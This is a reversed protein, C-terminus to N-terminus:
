NSGIYFISNLYKFHRFTIADATSNGACFNSCMDPVGRRKCCPEHNRGDVLCSVMDWTWTACIMFDTIQLNRLEVPDCFSNICRCTLLM